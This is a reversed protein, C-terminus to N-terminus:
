IDKMQNKDSKSKTKLKTHRTTRPGKLSASKRLDNIPGIIGLTKTEIGKEM